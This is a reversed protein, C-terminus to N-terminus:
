TAGTYAGGAVGLISDINTPVLWGQYGAGVSYAGGDDNIAEVTLLSGAPLFIFTDFSQSVSAATRPFITISGYGAIPNGNVLFRFTIETTPLMDNVYLDLGRIVAMQTQDLQTNLDALQATGAGAFVNEELKNIDQGTPPKYLWWPFIQLTKPVGQGLGLDGRGAPANRNQIDLPIVGPHSGRRSDIPM